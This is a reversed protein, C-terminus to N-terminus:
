KTQPYRILSLHWKIALFGCIFSRGKENQEIIGFDKMYVICAKKILIDEILIDPHFSAMEYSYELFVELTLKMSKLLFITM